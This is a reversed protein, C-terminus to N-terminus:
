DVMPLQFAIIGVVIKLSVLKSLIKLDTWSVDHLIKVGIQKPTDLGKSM